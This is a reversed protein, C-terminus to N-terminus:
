FQKVVLVARPQHASFFGLGGTVNTPHNVPENALSSVLGGTRRRADLFRFYGESIHSLAVAVTDRVAVFPLRVTDAIVAETFAQDTILTEYFVLEEDDNQLAPNPEDDVFLSDLVGSSPLNYAHLVYYSEGPPDTFRYALVTTTDGQADIEETLSVTDFAVPPQLATTASVAEGTRYDIVSLDLQQYPELAPLLGGYLGPLDFLKFLTDSRDGHRLFVGASDVLLRDIFDSSLSDVDTASLASFSRSVTVFLSRESGMVSSVVLRSPAMVPLARVADVAARPRITALM